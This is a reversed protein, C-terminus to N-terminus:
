LEAHRETRGADRLLDDRPEVALDTTRQEAVDVGSSSPAIIRRSASFHPANIRIMPM